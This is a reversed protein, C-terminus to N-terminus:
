RLRIGSNPEISNFLPDHKLQAHRIPGLPIREIITGDRNRSKPKTPGDIVDLEDEEEEEEIESISNEELSSEVVSASATPLHRTMSPGKSSGSVVGSAGNKSKEEISKSLSARSRDNIQARSAQRPLTTTAAPQGFGQSRLASQELVTIKERASVNKLGAAFTSKEVQNTM